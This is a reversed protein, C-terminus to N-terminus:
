DIISNNFHRIYKEENIIISIKDKIRIIPYPFKSCIVGLCQSKEHWVCTIVDKKIKSLFLPGGRHPCNYPICLAKEDKLVLFFKGEETEISNFDNISFEVIM